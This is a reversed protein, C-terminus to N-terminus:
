KKRGRKRPAAAPAGGKPAKAGVENFKFPFEVPQPRPPKPFYWMRLADVVCDEIAKDGLSSKKVRPRDVIGDPTITFAVLVDGQVDQGDALRQEYCAQIEPQHHQVVAKISESNFPLKSADFGDKPKENTEAGPAPQASAGPQVSQELSQPPGGMGATPDDTQALALHAALAIAIM